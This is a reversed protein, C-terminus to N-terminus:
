GPAPRGGTQIGGRRRVGGQGEGGPTLRERLSRRINGRREQEPAHVSEEERSWANSM